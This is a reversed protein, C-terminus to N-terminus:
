AAVEQAAENWILSDNLILATAETVDGIGWNRVDMLEEASTIGTMNSLFDTFHVDNELPLQKDRAAQLLAALEPRRHFQLKFANLLDAGEMSVEETEESEVIPATQPAEESPEGTSAPLAAVSDAKKKQVWKRLATIRELIEEQPTFQDCEKPDNGAKTKFGLEMAEKRIAAYDDLNEKSAMVVANPITEVETEDLMGLGCHALVARRRAKTEAKMIANALKEGALDGISCVGSADTYRGDPTSARCKFIYVTKLEREDIIGTSIKQKQCLLEAAKKTAYLTMKSSLVVYIFPMTKPDLGAQECQMMYWIHRQADSLVAVDNRAVMVRLVTEEDALLDEGSLPASPLAARPQFNNQGGQNQTYGAPRRSQGGNNFNSSM